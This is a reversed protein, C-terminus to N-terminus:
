TPDVGSRMPLIAGITTRGPTSSFAIQGHHAAVVAAVIALGLGSGRGHGPESDGARAFRQFVRGQAEIPIGPGNDSVRWHAQAKPSTEADGRLEITVTTGPPTHVRANTVLNTLLQRLQREDGEITVPQEPLDLVWRHDPATAQAAAAVDITIVSLDVPSRVTDALADLRALLLLDEVLVGMRSAEAEIRQLSGRMADADTHGPRLALESYGRIITLPTRLEHSADALFERLQVESRERAHLSTEINRLMRDFATSLRGVETTRDAGGVSAPLAVSGSQLPMTSVLDAMGTVRTLPRLALRVAPRAAAAAGLLALGLIAGELALLKAITENLDHEPLGTVLVAGDRGSVAQLRYPGLGDLDISVIRGSAPVGALQAQAQTSLSTATLDAGVLGFATVSDNVLRAGLTGVSQGAVTGLAGNDGDSDSHELELAYRNGASSLQQDLRGLLYHHLGVYTGVAVAAYSAVLVALLVVIIRRQLSV